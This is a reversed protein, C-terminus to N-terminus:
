VRCALVDAADPEYDVRLSLTRVRIETHFGADAIIRAKRYKANGRGPSCQPEHLVVSARSVGVMAARETARRQDLGGGVGPGTSALRAQGAVRCAGGAAACQGAAGAALRRAEEAADWEARLRRFSPITRPDHCPLTAAMCVVMSLAPRSTM